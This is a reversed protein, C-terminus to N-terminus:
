LARYMSGPLPKVLGKFEMSLLLASLSSFAMHLLVAMENVHIGDPHKRLLEIIKREDETLNVFLDTQIPTTKQKNDIDWGMHFMLDEANEILAAQNRKILLNCGNSMSDSPRGPFAFVDRNYSNALRATTLSGGETKSEMVIIADSMGAIIRNRRVFNPRDPFTGSPFETLLGGRTTMQVAVSRHAAPYIRDLGHGPIAITALGAELAAKHATVDIGFALGSVITLGPIMQALDSVLRRTNEKGHDTANRTGVIAIYHQANVELEGKGYLLIPADTCEKLRFPYDKDTFFFTKLAHKDVFELERDARELAARRIADSARMPGIEPIKALAKESESFIGAVDGVYALLTKALTPGIGNIFTLAIEYRRKDM